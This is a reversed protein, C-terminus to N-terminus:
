GEDLFTYIHGLILVLHLPTRSLYGAAGSIRLEAAKAWRGSPTSYISDTYAFGTVSRTPQIINAMMTEGTRDTQAFAASIAVVVAVFFKIM